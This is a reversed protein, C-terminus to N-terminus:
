AVPPGYDDQVARKWEELDLEHAVISNGSRVAREYEALLRGPQERHREIRGQLRQLELTRLIGAQTDKPRPPELASDARSQYIEDRERLDQDAAAKTQLWKERYEKRLEELREQKAKPTLDEATMVRPHEQDHWGDLRRLEETSKVPHRSLGTM